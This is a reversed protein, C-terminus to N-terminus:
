KASNLALRDPVVRYRLWRDRQEPSLARRAAVTSTDVWWDPQTLTWRGRADARREARRYAGNLRRLFPGPDRLDGRMMTVLEIGLRKALEERDLDRRRPADDDHVGGNYEGGVAAVPDFLDPTLLHAGQPDFIPANCRLRARREDGLWRVRMIPEIPSWVNEDAMDLATRLQRVGPRAPLRAVYAALSELDILDAYAAVDIIQVARELSHARRVEWSVSREPVTVRVGDVVVVDDAFLWDESVLAGARPALCRSDGIALPVPLLGGRGTTGEFWPAGLWHLAAWGTIAATPAATAAEVIRQDAVTSDVDSPVFLNPGTRRYRRGRAQKRTPLGPKGTGAPVPVVVGPRTISDRNM